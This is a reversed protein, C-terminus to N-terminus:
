RFLLAAVTVADTAAPARGVKPKKAWPGPSAMGSSGGTFTMKARNRREPLRM